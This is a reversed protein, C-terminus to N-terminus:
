PYMFNIDYLSPVMGTNAIAYEIQIAGATPVRTRLQKSLSM